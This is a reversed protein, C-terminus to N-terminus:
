IYVPPGNNNTYPSGIIRWRSAKLFFLPFLKQSILCKGLLMRCLFSGSFTAEDLGSVAKFAYTGRIIQISRMGSMKFERHNEHFSVQLTGGGNPFGRCFSLHLDCLSKGFVSLPFTYKSISFSKSFGSDIGFKRVM